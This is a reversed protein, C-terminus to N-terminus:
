VKDLSKRGSKESELYQSPTKGTCGKFQRCLHSVSSYGAMEAIETLTYRRQDLIEKVWELKQLVQYREITRRELHSFVRSAYDYSVNIKSSIYTSLNCTREGPTRVYEIVAHKVEDVLVEDPDTLLEFDNAKLIRGVLPLAERPSIGGFDIISARGLAVNEVTFGAESLVREVTKVCHRCVM